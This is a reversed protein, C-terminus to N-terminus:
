HRAEYPARAHLYRPEGPSCLQVGLQISGVRRLAGPIVHGNKSFTVSKGQVHVGIVDGEALAARIASTAASKEKKNGSFIGGGIYMASGVNAPSFWNEGTRASTNAIQLVGVRASHAGVADVKVMWEANAVDEVRGGVRATPWLDDAEIYLATASSGDLQMTPTHEDWVVPDRPARM